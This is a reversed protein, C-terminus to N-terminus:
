DGSERTELSQICIFKIANANSDRTNLCTSNKYVCCSVLVGAFLSFIMVAGIFGSRCM